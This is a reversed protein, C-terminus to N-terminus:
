LMSKVLFPHRYLYFSPDICYPWTNIPDSSIFTGKWRANLWLNVVVVILVLGYIFVVAWDSWLIWLSGVSGCCRQSSWHTICQHSIALHGAFCHTPASDIQWYLKISNPTQDSRYLVHKANHISHMKLLNLANLTQKASVGMTRLINCHSMM